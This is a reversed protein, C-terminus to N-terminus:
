KPKKKLEMNTKSTMSLKKKNKKSLTEPNSTFGKMLSYM